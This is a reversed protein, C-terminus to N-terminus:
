FTKDESRSNEGAKRNQKRGWWGAGGGEAPCVVPGQQHIQARLVAGCKQVKHQQLALDQQVWEPGSHESSHSLGHHSHTQEAMNVLM